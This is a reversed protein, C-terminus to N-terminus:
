LPCSRPGAACTVIWSRPSSAAQDAEEDGVHMGPRAERQGIGIQGSPAPPMPNGPTGRRRPETGARPTNLATTVLESRTTASIACYKPWPLTVGLPSALEPAGPRSRTPAGWRRSRRTKGARPVVSGALESGSDFM